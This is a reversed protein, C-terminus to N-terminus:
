GGKFSQSYPSQVSRLRNRGAEEREWLLVLRSGPWKYTSPMRALPRCPLHLHMSGNLFAANMKAADKKRPCSPTKILRFRFMQTQSGYTNTSPDLWISSAPREWSVEHGRQEVLPRADICAPLRMKTGDPGKKARCRHQSSQIQVRNKEKCFGADLLARCRGIRYTTPGRSTPKLPLRAM